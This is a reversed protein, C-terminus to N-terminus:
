RLRAVVRDPREDDVMVADARGGRREVENVVRAVQDLKRRFPPKGLDVEIGARGVVLAFSGDAQVHIEQLGGREALDSQAVEGALEIAGRISSLAADPAETLSQPAIGTVIPLDTPDGLAARKFPKGDATALFLDGLAVLAAPRREVISITVTGPLRRGLSAEAIWPDGLLRERAADLDAGFLNQGPALGSEAVVAAANRRAGGSVEIAVVNFRPSRM